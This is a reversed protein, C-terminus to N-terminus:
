AAKRIFLRVRQGPQPRATSFGPDKAYKAFPPIGRIEICVETTDWGQVGCVPELIPCRRKTASLVMRYSVGNGREDGLHSVGRVCYM